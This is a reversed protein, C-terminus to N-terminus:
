EKLKRLTAHFEKKYQKYARMMDDNTVDVESGHISFVVNDKTRQFRMEPRQKLAENIEETAPITKNAGDIFWHMGVLTAPKNSKKCEDLYEVALQVVRPAIM